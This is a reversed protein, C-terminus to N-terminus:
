GAALAALETLANQQSQLGSIVSELNAYQLELTARKYELQEDLSTIRDNLDDVQNGITKNRRSLLGNQDDTLGDLIEDFVAAVGVDEATFLQEVAQPNEAYKERFTTEDFTLQGGNSFTIGISALTQTGAQAHDFRKLIMRSLRSELTIVTSDGLLPGRESTEEDFATFDDIRGIVDNYASVFSELDGVVQEIDQGITLSVPEDSVGVLDIDVGPVVGTLSNSSSSAVIPSSGGVGGILVVADQAAVLTNMGLGTSGADFLLEGRSGTIGSTLSLRYPSGSAGDNLVSAKLDPSAEEIKQAVDQLTDGADVNIRIEYSGDISTKGVAAEGAIRLDTAALGAGVDSVTLSGEGGSADNIVIGDGTENISATVGYSSGAENIADIVDGVTKDGEDIEVSFIEATSTQFQIKGTRIGRGGNLDELQTLQSVYQLQLNSGSVSKGDAVGKIGLDAALTGSVDSIVLSGDSGGTTDNIEIGTGVSNVSASVGDVTNNIISVLDQVTQAGTLDVEVPGNGDRTKISIVGTELGAGGNLSSLLVTNLGAMLDRSVAEPNMGGFVGEIGLDFSALSTSTDGLAEITLSEPGGGSLDQIRIGNSTLSARVLGNNGEAYNIARVVDGITTVRHIKDGIFSANETQQAIGLDSAAYGEADQIVLDHEM